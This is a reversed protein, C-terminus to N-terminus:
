EKVVITDGNELLINKDRKKGKLYERYNFHDTPKGNKHIVLIDKTNAFDRFGGALSLADFVSTESVLPFAGSRLVGGQIYFKRSNVALVLVTVDPKLFQESLAQTLQAKLRDPTLGAAQVDGILPMSFRGDPRIVYNGSMQDERWVRVQIVDEVGLIFTKPDVPAGTADAPIATPLPKAGDSAPLTNAEQGKRQGRQALASPVTVSLIAFFALAIRAAGINVRM